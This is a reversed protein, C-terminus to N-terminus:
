PHPHAATAVAPCHADIAVLGILIRTATGDCYTTNVSRRTRTVGCRKPLRQYIGGCTASYFYWQGCTCAGGDGRRVPAIWDNPNFGNAPVVPLQDIPNRAAM